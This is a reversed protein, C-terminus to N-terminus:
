KKNFIGTRGQGGELLVLYYLGSNLPQINIKQDPGVSGELIKKGEVSFVIYSTGTTLGVASLQDNAPNPYLTLVRREKNYEDISNPLQNYYYHQRGYFTAPEWLQSVANFNYYYNSVLVGNTYVYAGKNATDYKATNMNWGANFMSDLLTGNTRLYQRLNQPTYTQTVNNFSFDEIKTIMNNGNYTYITNKIKYWSGAQRSYFLISDTYGAANYYYHSKTSLAYNVSDTSGASIVEEMRNNGDYTYYTKTSNSYVGASFNVYWATDVYNGANYHFFVKQYPIVVPGALTTHNYIQRDLLNGNFVNISSDITAPINNVSNITVGLWLQTYSPDYTHYYRSNLEFLQTAANWYLYHSSDDSGFVYGDTLNQNITTNNAPAHFYVFSDTLTYQAGDHGYDSAGILKIQADGLKHIVILSVIFLLNKM